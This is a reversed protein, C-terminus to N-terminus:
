QGQLYDDVAKQIQEMFEDPKVQGLALLSVNRFSYEVGRPPLKAEFWLTADTISQAYALAKSLYEGAGSTDTVVFGPLYGVQKFATDGYRTFVYNLWDKFPEDLRGSSIVVGIATNAEAFGKSLKPDVGGAVAPYAHLSARIPINNLAPDDLDRALGTTDPYIAAQGQLFMDRAGMYDVTTLGKGFCGSEGFKAMMQAAQMFSPDSFKVGNKGYCANETVNIGGMRIIYNHMVTTMNWGDKGNVALPHIGQTVIKQCLDYLEDWTAPYSWGYKEFMGDNVWLGHANFEMPMSTLRGKADGTRVLAVAAPSMKDYLGLDRFTKEIDVIYGHDYLDAMGTSVQYQFIDPLSHSAALVNMQQEYQIYETAVLQFEVQAGPHAKMYDQSLMYLTYMANKNSPDQFPWLTGMTIKRTSAEKESQGAAYVSWPLVLVLAVLTLLYLVKRKSRGKFAKGSFEKRTM